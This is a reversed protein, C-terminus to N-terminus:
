SLLRELASFLFERGDAIDIAAAQQIPGLGLIGLAQQLDVIRGHQEVHAAVDLYQCLGADANHSRATRRQVPRLHRFAEAAFQCGATQHHNAAHRASDVGDRM